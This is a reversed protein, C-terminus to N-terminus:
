SFPLSPLTPRSNAPSTKLCLAKSPKSPPAKAPRIVVANGGANLAVAVPTALPAPYTLLPTEGIILGTACSTPFEATPAPALLVKSAIFNAFSFISGM